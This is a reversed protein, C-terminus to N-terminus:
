DQWRLKFAPVVIFFAILALTVILYITNETNFEYNGNWAAVFPNISYKFPNAWSMANLQPSTQISEIPAFGGSLLTIPMYIVNVVANYTTTSKFISALTLGLSMALCIMPIFLLISAGVDYPTSTVSWGFKYGFLIGAWLATWLVSIIVLFLGILVVSLLFFVPKINTAGIRKMLVSTKFELITSPIIFFGIALASMASYSGVLSHLFAAAQEDNGAMAGSTYISGMMFIMLIPFVFIFFPVAVGKIYYKMLLSILPINKNINKGSSIIKDFKNKKGPKKEEAKAAEFEADLDAKKEENFKKWTYKHVSGYEKVISEVTGAERITGNHIYIFKNCLQEIESMTHTVLILSKDTDVVKEKIFEIIQNRVEIDLGTSVEDFIVLDPSHILALLINVRQQQGGSLSQIYKNKFGVIQYIRMLELLEGETMAVSFTDLYYKIMDIVTIGLPYKSEQFQIGYILNNQKVVSGNTPKRIGAIIETLTSKGGGNPGIIGIRDGKKIDLNIDSLVTKKGYIKNVDKLSILVDNDMTSSETSQESKKIM